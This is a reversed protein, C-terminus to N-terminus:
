CKKHLLQFLSRSMENPLRFMWPFKARIRNECHRKNFKTFLLNHIVKQILNGPHLSVATVQTGKSNIM